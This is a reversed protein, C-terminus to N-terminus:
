SLPLPLVKQIRTNGGIKRKERKGEGKKWGRKEKKNLRLSPSISFIAASACPHLPACPCGSSKFGM